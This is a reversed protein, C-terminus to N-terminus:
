PPGMVIPLYIHYKIGGPPTPTITPTPTRTPTPSFTPTHTPRPTRTATLTPTETPPPPSALRDFVFVDNEAIDNPVLNGARSDFAVYRGDSSVSSNESSGNAQSLDYAVSARMTEGNILDRLFIDAKGNTDGNILNTARSMFVVFHGDASIQPSLSNDDGLAGNTTVSALIMEETERDYVHVDVKNNSDGRVLPASSVFTVFRGDESLSSNGSDGFGPFGDYDNSILVTEGTQRDHVFVDFCNENYDNDGDYECYNNWNGGGLNSSSSDFAVYRGDGSLSPKRSWHDGQVGESTISVRETEGTVLDHLFVDPCNEDAIDDYDVDCGNNTDGEVLNDAESTFAVYRGDASIAPDYSDGNSETGDSSVSVRRTEGTLMDHVFIDPCNDLSGDNGLDCFVNTDGDVLNSAQSVFAIYRGDASIAPSNSYSNAQSGDSAVSVRVTEGTQMDHVFVDACFGDTDYGCENTDDPVLNNAQSTFAIYRGDASISPDFSDFNGQTGDSAVSVLTTVGLNGTLPKLSTSVASLAMALLLALALYTKM